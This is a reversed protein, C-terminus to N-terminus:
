LKERGHDEGVCMGEKKRERLIRERRVNLRGKPHPKRLWDRFHVMDGVVGQTFEHEGSAWITRSPGVVIM